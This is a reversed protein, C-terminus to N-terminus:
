KKFGIVVYISPKLKKTVFRKFLKPDKQRFRLFRTRRDMKYARLKHKLLWNIAREPTWYRKKFIVSQIESM